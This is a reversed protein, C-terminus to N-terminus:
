LISGMGALDSQDAGKGKNSTPIQPAPVCRKNEGDVEGQGADQTPLEGEM